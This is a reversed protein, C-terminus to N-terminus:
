KSGATQEMFARGYPGSRDFVNTCPAKLEECFGKAYDSGGNFIDVFVLGKLNNIDIGARKLFDKNQALLKGIKERIDGVKRGDIEHIPDSKGNMLYITELLCHLTYINNRESEPTYNDRKLGGDPTIQIIEGLKIIETKSYTLDETFQKKIKEFTTTESSVAYNPLGDIYFTFLFLPRNGRKDRFAFVGDSTQM